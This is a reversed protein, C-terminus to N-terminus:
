IGIVAVTDRALYAIALNVQVVKFVLRVARGLGRIFIQGELKKVVFLHICTHSVEYANM